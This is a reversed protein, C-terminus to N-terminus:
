FTGKVSFSFLPGVLDHHREIFAIPNRDRFGAYVTRNFLHWGEPVNDVSFRVTLGMVNKDEVYFGAIWPLDQSSYVETLYYYKAYHNYQVYVSWAFPTHPIDHRIQASGWRDYNGTIPRNKGTLPDRVRTWEFGANLDLKAGHWGLPDFNITSTSEAGAKIASPLNGIGQQDTDIPIVDIIDSVRYYHLNLRTKGWKGLDHSFETEAEWSQPPVLDPNGANERDQSLQPQALFDYFSIQGVRRRLKLSIDWDKAPHWGFTLSGKPRFFKRPPRDDDTRDLRSVEAGAAVQLDLKPALPRSLTALGEYRVETVKGTGEPFPVEVFQEQPTLRFLAGKQDLSNFAREFSVQWDNKGSKWHYEARGITEGIHTDRSFRTGIPDAGSSIFRLVDTTVIPEHEWHRVGILKLRGPGLAFEYDGNVDGTYGDLSRRNTRTRTEGTTLLRTDAQYQPNWYPAYGLTLNGVSSGPGDIGLKLETSVQEYESHYREHRMETLVGNADLIRVPGGLGGRGFGNKVSLTYDVPGVKDSYSMSGGLLEPETFHARFNTKWEFQGTGKSTTKLIVNAVQGSLGAIGLSSADVIEIRDVASASTRQLQDVAGGSKNAIRQGNIIVNETAQGLGRETSDPTRITFSPVQALMDYATKPAFRTFDVPTYIRKAAGAPAPSQALAPVAILLAAGALLSLRVGQAAM